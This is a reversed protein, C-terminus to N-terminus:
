GNNTGVGTFQNDSRADIFHPPEIGPRWVDNNWRDKECVPTYTEPQPLKQYLVYGFNPVVFDGEDRSFLLGHKMEWDTVDDGNHWNVRRYPVVSTHPPFNEPKPLDCKEFMLDSFWGSIVVEGGSGCRENVYMKKWWEPNALNSVCNDVIKQVRTFWAGLPQFLAALKRWHDCVMQWDDTTGRVDIAPFACALMMYNYYPSAMDCFAARSASRSRQTSTSFDPLFTDIDSPVYSRLEAILKDLPMIFGGQPDRVVITQKEDSTTFISRYTDPSAKVQAALECLLTYWVHNPEIV